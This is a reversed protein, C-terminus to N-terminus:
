HEDSITIEKWHWIRRLATENNEPQAAKYHVSDEVM